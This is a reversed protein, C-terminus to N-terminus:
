FSVVRLQTIGSKKNTILAQFNIKYMYVIKVQRSKLIRPFLILKTKKYIRHIRWIVGLYSFLYLYMQNIIYDSKRM